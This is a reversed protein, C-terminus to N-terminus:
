DAGIPRPKAIGVLTGSIEASYQMNLMEGSGDAAHPEAGTPADVV